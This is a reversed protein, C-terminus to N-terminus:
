GRLVRGIDGRVRPHAGGLQDLAVAGVSTGACAPTLGPRVPPRPHPRHHGRARPPSGLLVADFAPEPLIDGRVRPHARWGTCSARMRLSTGACAPTLGVVVVLLRCGEVIDGRVRPHAGAVAVDPGLALSTGACAPTLGKGLPHTAPRGPHGRARPPSGRRVTRRTSPRAIDGRVRPHAWGEALRRSWLGSTGACAPTLGVCLDLHGDPLVIDGRVRPHARRSSATSRLQM